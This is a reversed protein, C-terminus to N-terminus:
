SPRVRSSIALTVPAGRPVIFDRRYRPSFRSIGNSFPAWAHVAVNVLLRTFPNGKGTDVALSQAIRLLRLQMRMQPLAFEAALIGIGSAM